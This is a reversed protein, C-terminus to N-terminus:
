FAFIFNHIIVPAFRLKEPKEPIDDKESQNRLQQIHDTQYKRIKYLIKQKQSTTFNKKLKIDIERSLFM